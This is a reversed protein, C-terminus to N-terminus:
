FGYLIPLEQSLEITGWNVRLADLILSTGKGADERDRVAKIWAVVARRDAATPHRPAKAPPMEGAELRDLVLEWIRYNKVVAAASTAGSLDLKAEQKKVGHCSLCQDKLFSTVVEKFRRDLAADDPENASAAGASCAVLLLTRALTSRPM